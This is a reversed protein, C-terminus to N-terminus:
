GHMEALAQYLRALHHWSGDDPLKEAAQRLAPRADAAKGMFLAAMGRNFMVPVSAPQKHWLRAAEEARGSHWALAAAENALAATWAAPLDQRLRELADAAPDFQGALRLTAAALLSEGHRGEAIVREVWERVLPVPAPSSPPQRLTKLDTAHLLPSLDRVLQPFNGLCFALATLPERGAVLTPWEAPAKWSRTESAPRYHRAAALAEDWALRPDVPQAPVAEFPVVDGGVTVGLGDGHAAAQRQIYHTLLDVLAPQPPQTASDPKRTM